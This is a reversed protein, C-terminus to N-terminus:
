YENIGSTDSTTDWWLPSLKPVKRSRTLGQSIKHSWTLGQSVKHSRTLGKAVTNPRTVGPSIRVFGLSSQPIRAFGPIYIHIAETATTGAPAATAIPSATSQTTAMAARSLHTWHHKDLSAWSTWLDGADTTLYNAGCLLVYFKM